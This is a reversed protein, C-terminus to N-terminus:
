TLAETVINLNWLRLGGGCARLLLHLADELVEQDLEGLERVSLETLDVLSCELDGGLEGM